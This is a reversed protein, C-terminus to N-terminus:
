RKLSLSLLFLSKLLLRRTMWGCFFSWSGEEKRRCVIAGRVLPLRCPHSNAVPKDGGWRGCWPELLEGHIKLRVPRTDRSAALNKASCQYRGQDDKIASSIVLNGDKDIIVRFSPLFDTM